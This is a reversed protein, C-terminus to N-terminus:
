YRYRELLLINNDSDILVVNYLDGKENNNEICDAMYNNFSLKAIDLSCLDSWVIYIGNEDFDIVKNSNIKYDDNKFEIIKYAKDKLKIKM